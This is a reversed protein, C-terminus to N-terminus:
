KRPVLWRNEGLNIELGSELWRHELNPILMEAESQFVPGPFGDIMGVELRKGKLVFLSVTICYPCKFGNWMGRRADYAGSFIQEPELRKGCDLCNISM